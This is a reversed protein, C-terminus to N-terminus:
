SKEAMTFRGTMSNSRKAKLLRDASLEYAPAPKVSEMGYATVRWQHNEFLVKSTPEDAEDSM